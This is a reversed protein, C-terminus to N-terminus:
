LDTVVPGSRCFRDRFDDYLRTGNSFVPARIHRVRRATIVLVM